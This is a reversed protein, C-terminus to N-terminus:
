ERSVRWYRDAISRDLGLAPDVVFLFILKTLLFLMVCIFKMHRDLEFLISVIDDHLM